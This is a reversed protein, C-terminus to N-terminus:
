HNMLEQTMFRDIAAYADVEDDGEVVLTITDGNKTGLTLLNLMSNMNVVRDGKKISVTSRYEKALRVLKTAPRAHIGDASTVIYEKSIM